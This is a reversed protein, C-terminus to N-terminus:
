VLWWLRLAALALVVGLVALEMMGGTEIFGQIRFTTVPHLLNVGMKTISDSFLHTLYGIALALGIEHLGVYWFGGYLILAPFVSHFFGRHTFFRAAWRTVPFIKNIKSGEHDVDPFLSAFTVLAVFLIPHAPSLMPLLLLAALFGFVMHTHGM